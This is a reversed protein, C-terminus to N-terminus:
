VAGGRIAAEVMEWVPSVERGPSGTGGASGARSLSADVQDVAIAGDHDLGLGRLARFVPNAAGHDVDLFVADGPPLRAADELVILNWIGPLGSLRDLLRGTLGPATVVRIHLM